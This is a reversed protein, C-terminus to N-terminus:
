NRLLFIWDSFDSVTTLDWDTSIQQSFQNLWTEAAQKCMSPSGLKTGKEKFPAIYQEWIQVGEAVSMGASGGGSACDPEEFGLMYLPASTIRKFAAFRSADTDDASGGGWLMPVPIPAGTWTPNPSWDYWWGIHSELISYANGSSTGAKKGNPTFGSASEISSTSGGSPSTATPSSGSETTANETIGMSMTSTSTTISTGLTTDAPSLMDCSGRRLPHRWEHNHHEHSAATSRLAEILTLLLLVWPIM